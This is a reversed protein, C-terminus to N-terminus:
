DPCLRIAPTMPNISTQTPIFISPATPWRTSASTPATTGRWRKRGKVQIFLTHPLGAHTPTKTDGEGIFLYSVEHGSFATKFQRLWSYDLDNLLDKQNDFINFRLYKSKDKEVADFYESFNTEKFENKKEPDVLGPNDITYACM